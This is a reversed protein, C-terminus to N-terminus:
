RHWVRGTRFMGSMSPYKLTGIQPPM